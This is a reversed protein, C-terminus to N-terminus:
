HHTHFAAVAPNREVARKLLARGQETDGGSVLILACQYLVHSDGGKEAGAVLAERVTATAEEKKGGRHLAWALGALAVPTRRLELDRRAWKEAQAPDPKSDAYFSSLHHFWIAEGAEASALYQKEADGLVPRAADNKGAATLVDGLAQKLWPAPAAAVARRYCDEAESWRGQAARLEGQRDLAFWAGPLAALAAAYDLEAAVWEGHAFLNGGRQTLAWAEWFPAPPETGRAAAVAAEYHTRAGDADGRALALRALRVRVGISDSTKERLIAFEREATALDNLEIAADGLLEHGGMRDSRTRLFEEADARAERFRHSALFAQGRALLGAPNLAAPVSTLSAGATERARLLWAPDGTERLMRLCESSLRASAPADAPDRKLRAELFEVTRDPAIDEAVAPAASGVILAALALCAVSQKMEICAAGRNAPRIM